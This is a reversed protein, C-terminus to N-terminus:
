PTLRRRGLRYGLWLAAVVLLATAADHVVFTIVAWALALVAWALWLGFSIAALAMMLPFGLLLVLLLVMWFM